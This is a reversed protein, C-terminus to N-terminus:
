TGTYPAAKRLLPDLPKMRCSLSSRALFVTLSSVFPSREAPVRLSSM